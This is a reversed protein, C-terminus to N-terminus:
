IVARFVGFKLNGNIEKNRFCLLSVRIVALKDRLPPPFYIHKYLVSIFTSYHVLGMPTTLIQAVEWM